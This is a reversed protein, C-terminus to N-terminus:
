EIGNCREGKWGSNTNHIQVNEVKELFKAIYGIDRQESKVCRDKSM